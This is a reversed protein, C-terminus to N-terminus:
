KNFIRNLNNRIQEKIDERPVLLYVPKSTEEPIPKVGLIKNLENFGFEAIASREM